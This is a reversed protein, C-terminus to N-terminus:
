GAASVDCVDVGAPHAKVMLDIYGSFYAFGPRVNPKIMQEVM